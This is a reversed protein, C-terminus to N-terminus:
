CAGSSNKITTKKKQSANSQIQYLEFITRSQQARLWRENCKKDIELQHQNKISISVKFSLSQDPLHHAM